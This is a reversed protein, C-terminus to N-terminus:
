EVNGNFMTMVVQLWLTLWGANNKWSLPLPAHQANSYCDDDSSAQNERKRARMTHRNQFFSHSIRCCWLFSSVKLIGFISNRHSFASLFVYRTKWKNLWSLYLPLIEDLRSTSCIHIKSNSLEWTTTLEFSLSSIDESASFTQFYRTFFNFNVIEVKVSSLTKTFTLILNSSTRRHSLEHRTFTTVLSRWHCSLTYFYNWNIKTVDIDVNLLINFLFNWERITTTKTSKGAENIWHQKKYTLSFVVCLSTSLLDFRSSAYIM